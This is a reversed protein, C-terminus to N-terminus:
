FFFGGNYNWNKSKMASGYCKTYTEFGGYTKCFKNNANKWFESYRTHTECCKKQLWIQISAPQVKVRLPSWTALQKCGAFGQDTLCKKIIIEM